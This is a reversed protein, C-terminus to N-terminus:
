WKIFICVIIFMVVVVILLVIYYHIEHCDEIVCFYDESNDMLDDAPPAM